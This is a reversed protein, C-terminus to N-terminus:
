NAALLNVALLQGDTDVTVYQKRGSIEHAECGRARAGPSAGVPQRCHRGERDACTRDLM